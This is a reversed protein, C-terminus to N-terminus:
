SGNVMFNDSFWLNESSKLPPPYLNILESLVLLSIQFIDRLSSSQHCWYNTWTEPTSKCVWVLSAFADGFSFFLKILSVTELEYFTRVKSLVHTNEYAFTIKMCFSCSIRSLVYLYFMLIKMHLHLKWAFVVLYGLTISFLKVPLCHSIHPSHVHECKSIFRTM